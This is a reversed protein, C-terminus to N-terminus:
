ESSLQFKLVKGAANRPLEDLFMIRRPVKFNALCERAWAMIEDETIDGQKVIFAQPVEGLREDALATVAIDKINPHTLMIREIEAPYCNFGGVIILDKKRDTIRVYGHEDQTGVDGTKLWGEETITDSTADPDDLYGLMVNFGRVWLEGEEGKGVDRGDDGVIRLETNPLPRGCTSAITKLDDGKQCLTVVGSSETLGYASFVDDIGLGFHMREILDVPITTAGTTAVRLSSIDYTDLDKQALLTEFITPAGPMVTIRDREIQSLTQAPDFVAAPFMAAGRILCSLWGAKYGFSHFFPNIILYRDQDTMGIATTFVDFVAINQEHTTMVGQPLGTTGSTYIIDSVGSEDVSLLTDPLLPEKAEAVFNSFSKADVGDRMVIVDVLDPLRSLDILSPYDVGLFGKVTFLFKSKSRLLIDEAEAGKFRTNLTVLSAGLAQGALAAIIWEACNPAWIAFREGNGLGRARLSAAVQLVIEQLELYTLRYAGDQIALAKPTYKAADYLSSPITPM